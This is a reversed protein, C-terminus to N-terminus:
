MNWKWLHVQTHLAKQNWLTQLLIASYYSIMKKWLLDQIHSLNTTMPSWLFFRIWVSSYLVCDKKLIWHKRKSLFTLPTEFTCVCYMIWWFYFTIFIWLFIYVFIAWGPISINYFCVNVSSETPFKLTLKDWRNKALCWNKQSLFSTSPWFCSCFLFSASVSGNVVIRM